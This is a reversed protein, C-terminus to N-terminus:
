FCTRSLTIQTMDQADRQPPVSEECQFVAFFVRETRARGQKCQACRGAHMQGQAPPWTAGRGQRQIAHRSQM